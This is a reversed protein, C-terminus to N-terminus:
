GTITGTGSGHIIIAGKPASLNLTFQKDPGTPAKRITVTVTRSSLGKKFTLSGKKPLYDKKQVATGDATAYKVSVNSTSLPDLTVTFTMRVSGRSSRVASADAVFFAPGHPATTTTHMSTTTGGAGVLTASLGDTQPDAHPMPCTASVDGVSVNVTSDVTDAYSTITADANPAQLVIDVQPPMYTIDHGIAINMPGDTLTTVTTATFTVHFPTTKLGTGNNQDYTAVPSAPTASVISIPGNDSAFEFTTSLNKYANINLGEKRNLTAHGAPITAAFTDGQNAQNDMVMQVTIDKPQDIISHCTVHFTIPDGNTGGAAGASAGIAFLAAGATLAVATSVVFARATRRKMLFM